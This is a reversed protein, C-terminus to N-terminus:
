FGNGLEGTGAGLRSQPRPRNKNELSAAIQSAESGYISSRELYVSQAEDAQIQIANQVYSGVPPSPYTELPPACCGPIACVLILLFMRSSQDRVVMELQGSRIKKCRPSFVRINTTESTM